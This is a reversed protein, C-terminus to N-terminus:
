KKSYITLSKVSPPTVGQELEVILLLQGPREYSLVDNMFPLHGPWENRHMASTDELPLSLSEAHRRLEEVRYSFRATEEPGLAHLGPDDGRRAGPGGSVDLRTYFGGSGCLATWLRSPVSRLNHRCNFTTTRAVTAVPEGGVLSPPIDELRQAIGAFGVAEGDAVEELAAKIVTSPPLSIIHAKPLADALEPGVPKAACGSLFTVTLAAAVLTATLRRRSM